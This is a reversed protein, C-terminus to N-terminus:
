HSITMQKTGILEGDAILSYVYNGAAMANQGIVISGQGISKVPIRSVFSGDITFIDMHAQAYGFPLYYEIITTEDFPNPYNQFLEANDSGGPENIFVTGCCTTVAAELADLRDLLPQLVTTLDVTNGNEITLINGSLSLTQDDGGDAGAPGTAGPAGDAGDTGNTGDVGAAGTAGTAGDAGNTGNTGNAGAAGTAGTDGTPGQAGIAGDVGNTGNTGDAGAAGTAGTDGTPGTAGDAGNTGNTGDAGAAGTTGTDGTPGTAGDAGNTGNTGDAGAAGAAGNTGNTGAAGTPGTAGTLGVGTLSVWAGSKYGEFDTGTWRITGENTTTTTGVNIAGNVTLVETPNTTKIGVMDTSGGKIYVMNDAAGPTIKFPLTSSNTVDRIFFNTENGAVDWTQSTFGDSGDQELRMTPSNGEVIHLDVVPNATKIGVDGDSEVYLTNNPAGAEILFPTVGATADVVSFYEAGGNSSSNAHLEWDNSPFSGPTSTDEFRIRVNNEYMVFTNFGWSPTAPVDIGIGLSGSITVDTAHTQALVVEVSSTLVVTFLALLINKM